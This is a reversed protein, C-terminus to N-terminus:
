SNKIGMGAITGGCIKTGNELFIEAEAKFKLRRFFVKRAQILVREGPRVMGTFEVNVDTFVTLIKALEERPMEKSAWYIGYAVVGTQAMAELLIVGPTVPNGPFHGGYFFEEARFTYSALIREDNLELIEDLFRFPPAQPVMALVEEKTLAM